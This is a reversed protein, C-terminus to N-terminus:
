EDALFEFGNEAAYREAESRKVWRDWDESEDPTASGSTFRDVCVPGLGEGEEDEDEWKWLVPVRAM